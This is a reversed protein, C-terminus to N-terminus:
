SSPEDDSEEEVLGLYQARESPRLRILAGPPQTAGNPDGADRNRAAPRAARAEVAALIERAFAEVNDLTPSGTPPDFFVQPGEEPDPTGDIYTCSSHYVRQSLDSWHIVFGELQPLDELHEERTITCWTPCVISVPVTPPVAITTM